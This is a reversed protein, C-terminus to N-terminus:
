PPKNEEPNNVAELATIAQETKVIFDLVLKWYWNPMAVTEVEVDNTKVVNWNKDLPLVIGDKPYPPAPFYVGELGPVVPM